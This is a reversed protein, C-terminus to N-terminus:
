SHQPPPGERSTRTGANMHFPPSPSKAAPTRQNVRCAARYLQSHMASPSPVCTAEKPGSLARPTRPYPAIPVADPVGLTATPPVNRSSCTSSPRCGSALLQERAKRRLEAQERRVVWGTKQVHMRGQCVRLTCCVCRVGRRTAVAGDQSLGLAGAIRWCKQAQAARVESRACGSCNAWTRAPWDM